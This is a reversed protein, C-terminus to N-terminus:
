PASELALHLLGSKARFDRLQASPWSIYPGTCGAPDRYARIETASRLRYYGIQTYGNATGSAAPLHAACSVSSGDYVGISAPVTTFNLIRATIYTQDDIVNSIQLEHNIGSVAIRIEGIDDPIPHGQADMPKASVWTLWQARSSVTLGTNGGGSLGVHPTGDISITVPALLNNYVVFRVSFETPESPARDHGCAAALAVLLCAGIDRIGPVHNPTM